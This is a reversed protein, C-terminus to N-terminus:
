LSFIEWNTKGGKSIKYGDGFKKYIDTEGDNDLDASFLNVSEEGSTNLIEWNNGTKYDAYFWHTQNSVFIDTTENLNFNGTLLQTINYDSSGIKNWNTTAGKSISWDTGNTKFTDTKGDGDFDGFKLNTLNYSPSYNVQEWGTIPSYAIQWNHGSTSFIDTKGDGNFDAIKVNSPQYGSGGMDIWKYNNFEARIHMTEPKPYNIRYWRGNRNTFIEATGDGDFDGCGVEMMNLINEGTNEMPLYTVDSINHKYINPFIHGKVYGNYSNNFAFVNDGYITEDGSKSSNIMFVDGMNSKIFNNKEVLFMVEPIGRILINRVTGRENEYFTNHHVYFFTGAIHPNEPDQNEPKIDKNGHTDVNENTSGGLVTNYSFEYGSNKLGSCTIDHRNHKFFNKTVLAFSQGGMSVAYGYHKQKNNHFYNHKIVINNNVEQGLTIGSYPFNYVESNDITINQFQGNISIGHKLELKTDDENKEGFPGEFRIGTIRVNSSNIELIAKSRNYALSDEWEGAITNYRGYVDTKIIAGCKGNGGRGSALTIAKDVIIADFESVNIIASDEIYIIDGDIADIIAQKLSALNNVQYSASGINILDTTSTGISCNNSSSKVSSTDKNAELIYDDKSCGSLVLLALLLKTIQGKLSKKIFLNKM